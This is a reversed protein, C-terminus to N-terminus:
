AAPYKTPDLAREVTIFPPVMDALAMGRATGFAGAHQSEVPLVSATLRQAEAAKMTGLAVMYTAAASSELLFGLDLAHNTDRAAELQGRGVDLLKANPQHNSTAGVRTGAASFANAHATHHGAFTTFATRVAPITVTATSAAETYISALARELSEAFAVQQGDTPPADAAAAPSVLDVLPVVATGITIALGGFAGAQLVQRRTRGGVTPRRRHQEHQEHEHEHPAHQDHEHREPELPQRHRGVRAEALVAELTPLSARHEDDAEAVLRRLEHESIEM